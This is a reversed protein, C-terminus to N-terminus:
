ERELIFKTIAKAVGDHNNSATVYDAAAKIEEIGNEMAVGFGAAQVMEIDNDGDGFSMIQEPAIGFGAALDLMASGKNITALNIELNNILASTLKVEPMQALEAQAAQKDALNMFIGQLKDMERHEAAVKAMLDPVARRTALFYQKIPEDMPLEHVRAQADAQVFGYGDYYVEIICDYKNLIALAQQGVPQPLLHESLVKREALDIVRAGNASIVYRIGPFQQLEEPVASIPRGTTPVVIIKRRVLEALVASTYPTIEKERTLLTGDLDFAVMKYQNM